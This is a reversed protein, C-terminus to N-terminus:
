VRIEIIPIQGWTHVDLDEIRSVMEDTDFRCPTDFEGAWTLTDSAQPYKAATGGSATLTPSGGTSTALTWTYPGAGSKNSITHAIGNLLTAATGTVGSLYMKEGISLGPDSATVVQHTAGIVHSSVVASGLAVFSVEGNTTDLTYNTPSAQLVGGRYISASVPKTIDRDSTNAGSTYRKALQLTPTGDGVGSGIIGNAVTVQYDAWDRVRFGNLKGKGVALFFALLVDLEAQSKVGHAADYRRRARSWDQNRKEHGSAMEVVKTRFMPGGRFGYSVDIPFRPSEIFSM